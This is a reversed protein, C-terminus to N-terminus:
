VLPCVSQSDIGSFYAHNTGNKGIFAANRLALPFDSVSLPSWNPHETVLLVSFFLHCMETIRM